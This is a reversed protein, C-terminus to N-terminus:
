SRTSRSSLWRASGLRIAFGNFKQYCWWGSWRRLAGPIILGAVASRARRRPRSPYAEVQNDIDEDVIDPNLLHSRCRAAIAGLLFLILTSM